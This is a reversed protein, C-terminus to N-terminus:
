QPESLLWAVAEEETAFINTYYPHPAAFAEAVAPGVTDDTHLQQLRASSSVVALRLAQPALRTAARPLFDQTLWQTVALDLPGALRSDLLWRGCGHRRALELAARYSTQVEWLTYPVQWRLAIAHWQAYYELSYVLQPLATTQKM